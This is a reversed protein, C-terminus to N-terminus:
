SDFHFQSSITTVLLMGPMNPALTLSSYKYIVNSILISLVSRHTIVLLWYVHMCLFQSHPRYLCAACVSTWCVSCQPLPSPMSLHYCEPWRWRALATTLLPHLGALDRLQCLCWAHTLCCLCLYQCIAM